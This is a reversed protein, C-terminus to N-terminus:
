PNPEVLTSNLSPLTIGKESSVTFANGSSLSYYADMVYFIMFIAFLYRTKYNIITANRGAHSINIELVKKAGFRILIDGIIEFGLIFLYRYLLQLFGATNLNSFSAFFLLNYRLGLKIIVFILIFCVASYYDAVCCYYYEVVLGRVYLEYTTAPNAVANGLFSLFSIKEVLLRRLHVFRLNYVMRTMAVPFMFFQAVLSIVTVAVTLGWNNISLFLNRYYFFFITQIAFQSFYHSELFGPLMQNLIMSINTILIRTAHFIIIAAISQTVISFLYSDKAKNEAQDTDWLRALIIFGQLYYWTGVLIFKILFTIILMSISWQQYGAQTRLPRMEAKSEVNQSNTESIPNLGISIQITQETGVPVAVDKSGFYYSEGRRKRIPTEIMETEPPAVSKISNEYMEEDEGGDVGKIYCFLQYLSRSWHRHVRPGTLQISYIDEPTIAERKESVLMQMKREQDAIQKRTAFVHSIYVVGSSIVESACLISIGMKSGWWDLLWIVVWSVATLITFLVTGFFLRLSGCNPWVFDFFTLWSFYMVYYYLTVSAIFGARIGLPIAVWGIGIAFPPLLFLSMIKVTKHSIRIAM